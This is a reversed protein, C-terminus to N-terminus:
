NNQLSEYDACNGVPGVMGCMIELRWLSTRALFERRLVVDRRGCGLGLDGLGLDGLGLSLEM